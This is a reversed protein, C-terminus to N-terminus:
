LEVRKCIQSWHAGSVEEAMSNPWAPMKTEERAELIIDAALRALTPPAAEPLTRAPSGDSPSLQQFPSTPASSTAPFACPGAWPGTPPLPHYWRCGIGKARVQRQPDARAKERLADPGRGKPGPRWQRSQPSREAQPRREPKWKGQNVM